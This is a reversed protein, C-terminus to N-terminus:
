GCRLKKSKECLCIWVERGARKRVKCTLDSTLLINRAALDRHIFSKHSLHSMGCAIDRCFRLLLNPLHQPPNKWDRHSCSRPFISLFLFSLDVLTDKIFTVEPSLSKYGVASLEYSYIVNHVSASKQIRALKTTRRGCSSSMSLSVNDSSKLTRYYLVPAFCTTYIHLPKLLSQKSIGGDGAEDECQKM